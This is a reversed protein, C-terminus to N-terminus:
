GIEIGDDNLVIVVDDVCGADPVQMGHLNFM